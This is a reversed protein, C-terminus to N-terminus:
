AVPTAAPALVDPPAVFVLLLTPGEAPRGGSVTGAEEAFADGPELTTESGPLVPEPLREELGAGRFIRSDGADVAYTLRGSEVSGLVPGPSATPDFGGGPAFRQRALIIAASRPLAGFM